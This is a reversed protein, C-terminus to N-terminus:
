KEEPGFRGPWLRRLRDRVGKEMGEESPEYYRAGAVADPLYREEVFHGKFDHPYRYGKAYGMGKMLKTPANRLHLPIEHAFGSADEKARMLAVYSANGKPCSALFTACQGLVIEAEPMGINQAATLAAVAFPLAQPSANGIDESAFIVMRRAIFVPDEGALIMRALYYVAADPDSGRMSKIFASITDYHRDGARDYYVLSRDLAEGLLEPTIVGDASLMVATELVNLMRRADGQALALLMGRSDGTFSITQERLVVDGALARDLVSELDQESLPELRLVRSRSLLPSIVQFSPNETTAGILVIDGSEVANLISDQQAKNFRHIEDLFLLTKVGRARNAEGAQIVKRVEAVGSSVASLFHAEMGFRGAIIRALTTKGTGPAGWLIMSFPTNKRFMSHLVKGEGLLQRQGAYEELTKPRCREALPPFADPNDNM